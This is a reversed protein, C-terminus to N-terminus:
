KLSTTSCCKTCTWGEMGEDWYLKGSCTSGIVESGDDNFYVEKHPLQEEEFLFIDEEGSRIIDETMDGM